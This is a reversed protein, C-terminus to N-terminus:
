GVTVTTISYVFSWHNEMDEYQNVVITHTCDTFSGPLYMPTLGYNGDPQTRFDEGGICETTVHPGVYDSYAYRMSTEHIEVMQGATTNITAVNTPIIDGNGATGISGGIAIMQSGSDTTDGPEQADTDDATNGFCGSLVIVLALMLAYVNKTATM